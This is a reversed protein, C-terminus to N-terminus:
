EQPRTVCSLLSWSSKSLQAIGLQSTRGQLPKWTLNKELMDTAFYNFQLINHYQKLMWQSLPCLFIWFIDATNSYTHKIKRNVEERRAKGVSSLNDWIEAREAADLERADWISSRAWFLFSKQPLAYDRRGTTYFSNQLIIYKTYSTIYMEFFQSQLNWM